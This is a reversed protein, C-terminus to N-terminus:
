IDESMKVNAFAKIHIEACFEFLGFRLGLAHHMDLCLLARNTTWLYGSKGLVYLVITSGVFIPEVTENSIILCGCLKLHNPAPPIINIFYLLNEDLLLIVLEDSHEVSRKWGGLCNLVNRHCILVEEKQVLRDLLRKLHITSVVVFGIAFIQHFLLILKLLSDVFEVIDGLHIDNSNSILCLVKVKGPEQVVITLKGLFQVHPIPLVAHVFDLRILRALKVV